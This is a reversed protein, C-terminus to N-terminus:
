RIIPHESGITPMPVPPLGQPRVLPLPVPRGRPAVEPIPVPPPEAPVPRLLRDPPARRVGDAPVAAGATAVLVVSTGAAVALARWTMTM